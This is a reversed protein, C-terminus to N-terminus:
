NCRMLVLSVPCEFAEIDPDWDDPDFDSSVLLGEGYLHPGIGNALKCAETYKDHLVSVTFREGWPNVVNFSGEGESGSREYILMPWTDESPPAIFRQVPAVRKAADNVLKDRQMVEEPTLEPMPNDELLRDIKARLHGYKPGLVEYILFERLAKVLKEVTSM